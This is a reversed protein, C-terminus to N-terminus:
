ATRSIVTLHGHARATYGTPITGPEDPDLPAPAPLHAPPTRTLGDTPDIGHGLVEPFTAALTGLARRAMSWAATDPCTDLAATLVETTVEAPTVEALPGTNLLRDLADVLDDTLGPQLGMSRLGAAHGEALEAWGPGHPRPRHTVPTPTPTDPTLPAPGPETPPPPPTP